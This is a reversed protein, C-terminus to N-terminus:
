RNNVFLVNQIIRLLEPVNCPKTMYYDGGIVRGIIRDAEQVKGTLMIIPVDKHKENKRVEKCVEEGSLEPLNLDLIILDPSYRAVERLAEKGDGATYVQYGCMKELIHKLTRVVFQDDDVLLIKKTAVREASHQM